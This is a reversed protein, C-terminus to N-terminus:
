RINRVNGVEWTDIVELVEVVEWKDNMMVRIRAWSLLVDAQIIESEM